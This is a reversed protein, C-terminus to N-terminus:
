HKLHRPIIIPASLLLLVDRQISRNKAPRSTEKHPAWFGTFSFKQPVVWLFCTLGWMDMHFNLKDPAEGGGLVWSSRGCTVDCVWGKLAGCLPESGTRPSPFSRVCLPKEPGSSSTWRSVHRQSHVGPLACLFQQHIHAGLRHQLALSVQICPPQTENPSICCFFQVSVTGPSPCLRSYWLLLTFSQDATSISQTFDFMALPLTSLEGVSYFFFSFNRSERKRDKDNEKKSWQNIKVDHRSRARGDWESSRQSRRQLLHCGTVSPFFGCTGVNM